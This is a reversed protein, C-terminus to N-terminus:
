PRSRERSSDAGIEVTLMDAMVRLETGARRNTIRQMTVKPLRGSFNM